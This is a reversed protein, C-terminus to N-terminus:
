TYHKAEIIIMVLCSRTVRSIESGGSVVEHIIEALWFDKGKLLHTPNTEFVFCSAIALIRVYFGEGEQKLSLFRTATPPCGFIRAESESASFTATSFSSLKLSFLAAAFTSVVV